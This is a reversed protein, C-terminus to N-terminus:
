VGSFMEELREDFFGRPWADIFEGNDSLRLHSLVTRGKEDRDVYLMAIRSPDATGERVRRQIRLALHESHTEAIVQAPQQAGRGSPGPATAELLLDGLEAQLRPHLHIEPQEICVSLGHSVILQVIVPLVQSIGFGVDRPSLVTGTSADSLLLATLQGLVPRGRKAGVDEVEV